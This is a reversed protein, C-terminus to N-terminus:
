PKIETESLNKNKSLEYSIKALKNQWYHIQSFFSSQKVQDSTPSSIHSFNVFEWGRERCIYVAATAGWLTPVRVIAVASTKGDGSSANYLSLSVSLAGKVNIWEGVTVTDFGNNNLVETIENQLGVKWSDRSFAVTATLIVFLATLLACFVGYKSLLKKYFLSREASREKVKSIEEEQEEDLEEDEDENEDLM